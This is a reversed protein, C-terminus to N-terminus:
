GTITKTIEEAHKKQQKEITSLLVKKLAEQFKAKSNPNPQLATKIKDLEDNKIVSTWKRKKFLKIYARKISTRTGLIQRQTTAMCYVLINKASTWKEEMDRLHKGVRVLSWTKFSLDHLWPLGDLINKISDKDAIEKDKKAITDDKEKLMAELEEIRKKGYADNEDINKAVDSRYKHVNQEFFEKLLQKEEEKKADLEQKKKPDKNLREIEKKLDERKKKTEDYETGFNNVLDKPKLAEREILENGIEQARKLSEADTKKTVESFERRLEETRYDKLSKVQNQSNNVM